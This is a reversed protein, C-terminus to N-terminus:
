GSGLLIGHVSLIGEVFAFGGHTDAQDARFHFVHHGLTTGFELGQLLGAGQQDFQGGGLSLAVIVPIALRHDGEVLEFHRLDRKGVGGPDRFVAELEEMVGILPLFALARHGLGTDDLRGVVLANQDPNPLLLVAALLLRVNDEALYLM